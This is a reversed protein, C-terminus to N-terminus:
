NMKGEDVIEVNSMRRKLNSIDFRSKVSSHNSAEQKMHQQEVTRHRLIVNDNM